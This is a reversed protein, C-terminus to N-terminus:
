ALPETLASFTMAAHRTGDPDRLFRVNEMYFLILRNGELSPSFSNLVRRVDHAISKVTPFGVREDSWIDLQLSLESGDICDAADAIVQAEGIVIYPTHTEDQPIADYIRDSVHAQIAADDLLALYIAKQLALSPEM